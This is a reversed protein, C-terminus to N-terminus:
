GRVSIWWTRADGELLRTALVVRAAESLRLDEAAMTVRELWVQVASVDGLGNFSECGLQRAEKLLKSVQM